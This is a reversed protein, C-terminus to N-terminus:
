LGVGNRNDIIVEYTLWDNLIFAISLFKPSLCYPQDITMKAGLLSRRSDKQTKEGAGDKIKGRHRMERYIGVSAVPAFLEGGESM